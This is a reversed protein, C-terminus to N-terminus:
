LTVGFIRLLQWVTAIAKWYLKAVQPCIFIEMAPANNVLHLTQNMAAHWVYSAKRAASRVLRREVIM